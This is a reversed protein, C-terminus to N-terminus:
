APPDVPPWQRATHLLTLIWITGDDIEYVLRYHPHPIVERTGAVTGQRGLYPINSLRRAAESFLNDIRLAASPNDAAIFQFISLRDLEAQPSWAVKM